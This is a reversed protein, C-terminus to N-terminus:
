HLQAVDEYATVARRKIEAQAVTAPKVPARRVYKLFRGQLLADVQEKTMHEALVVSSDRKTNM